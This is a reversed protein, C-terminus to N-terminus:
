VEVALAAMVTQLMKSILFGSEWQAQAPIAALMSIVLMLSTFISVLRKTM